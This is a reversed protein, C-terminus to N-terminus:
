ISFLYIGTCQKSWFLKFLPKIHKPKCICLRCFAIFFWWYSWYTVLIHRLRDDAVTCILTPMERNCSVLKRIIKLYWRHTHMTRIYFIRKAKLHFCVVFSITEHDQTRLAKYYKSYIVKQLSKKWGWVNVLRFVLDSLFLSLLTNSVSCVNQHPM